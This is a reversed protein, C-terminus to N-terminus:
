KDFGASRGDFVLWVFSHAFSAVILASSVQLCFIIVAHQSFMALNLSIFFAVAIVKAAFFSREKVGGLRLIIRLLGYLYRLFGALLIWVSAIDLIYLIASALAVLFADTEMDFYSGCESATNFRRALLGDVGDLVIIVTLCLGATILDIYPYSLGLIVLSLLRTLTVWNAPGGLLFRNKEFHTFFFVAISAASLLTFFVVSKFFLPELMCTSAIVAHWLNWKALGSTQGPIADSRM